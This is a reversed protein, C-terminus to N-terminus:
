GRRCARRVSILSPIGIFVALSLMSAGSSLQSSITVTSHESPSGMLFPVMRGDVGNQMSAVGAAILMYSGIFAAFICGVLVRSDARNLGSWFKSWDFKNEDGRRAERLVELVDPSTPFRMALDEAIILAAAYQKRRILLHAKRLEIDLDITGPHSLPQGVM